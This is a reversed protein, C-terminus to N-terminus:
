GYSINLSKWSFVRLASTLSRVFSSLTEFLTPEGHHDNINASKVTDFFHVVVQERM